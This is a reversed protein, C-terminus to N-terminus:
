FVLFDNRCFSYDYTLANACQANRHHLYETQGLTCFELCSPDIEDVSFNAPDLIPNPKGDVLWGVRHQFVWVNDPMIDVAFLMNELIHKESHGAALLREKMQVLFNGDGATPELLTSAPDTWVEPRLQDLMSSVVDAPTFIEHTEKVRERSREIVHGSM